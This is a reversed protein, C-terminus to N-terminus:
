ATRETEGCGEQEFMVVPFKAKKIYVVDYLAQGHDQLLYILETTMSGLFILLEIFFHQHLGM